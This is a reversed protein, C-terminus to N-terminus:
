DLNSVELGVVTHKKALPKVVVSLQLGQAAFPDCNIGLCGPPAKVTGPRSGLSQSDFASHAFLQCGIDAGWLGAVAHCHLGNTDVVHGSRKPDLIAFSM